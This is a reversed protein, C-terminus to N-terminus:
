QGKIVKWCSPCYGKRGVFHWGQQKMDRKYSAITEYGSDGSCAEEGNRECEDTKGDCYLYPVKHFM